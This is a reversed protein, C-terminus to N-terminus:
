KKTLNSFTVASGQGQLYLSDHGIVICETHTDTQERFQTQEVLGDRRHHPSHLQWVFGGPRGGECVAAEPAVPVVPERVLSGWSSVWRDSSERPTLTRHCDPLRTNLEQHAATIWPQAETFTFSAFVIINLM